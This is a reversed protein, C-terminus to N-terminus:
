VVSFKNKGQYSQAKILPDCDHFSTLGPLATCNICSLWQENVALWLHLLRLWNAATKSKQPSSNLFFVSTTVLFKHNHDKLM